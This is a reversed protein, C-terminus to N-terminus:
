KLSNKDVIEDLLKAACDARYIDREEASLARGAALTINAPQVKVILESIKYVNSVKIISLAAGLKINSILKMFEASSIKVCNTLIGYARFVIDKIELANSELMKKRASQEAECIQFVTTEVNKIIDYETLGLSVQNSVQYMYGEANSGEGYVGRVTIGIKNVANIIANISKNLTVAPLFLMVSARMGTGLNTPCSTLYGLKDDFAFSMKKSLLDDIKNLTKYAKELNYGKLVCQQRIHDEENIMVSVSEDESIVAAGAASKILDASILHKEKLALAETQNGSMLYLKFKGIKSLENNVPKIIEELRKAGKKVPFVYGNINRALRVRSTVAINDIVSNINETM